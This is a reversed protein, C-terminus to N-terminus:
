RYWSKGAWTDVVVPVKLRLASEMQERVIGTVDALERDPAEVVIEDHVQLIMRATLGHKRLWSDVNLMAVKIMDAASGQVPTNVAVREAAARLGRNSSRIDPVLRRRGLITRAEGTRAVESKQRELYEHVGWYREFYSQLFREAEDISMGTERALRQPGMGYIVGFNIVKARSRLDPTVEDPSVGFVRSATSRHVDEGRAFTDCLLEDGSLHALLRLEIQSYDASLLSWDDAEPVFAKRIRRGLPTRIPINQLNPESSSLRGTATVTQNFSTHIRGTQPNVLRPLAEVYTGMLKALNRYELVSEVIPQGRMRELVGVATSPGTKTRPVRTLGAAKHVELERYLVEALQRPSSVNFTRGSLGWIERELDGMRRQLVESMDRLYSSDVRVGTAEMNMLVRVLPLEVDRYLAGMDAAEIQPLFLGHLRLCYDADECSYEAVREPEVTALSVQQTKGDILEQLATKKVGLYRMSLADLGHQRASPDILYSEIMTDFSLGEVDVGARKLVLLDYKANQGGKPLSPDGLLPRLQEMRRRGEEGSTEVYSAEGEDCSFSIGLLEAQMPDPSTTETDFSFEVGGRLRSILQEFEQDTRVLTYSVREEGTSTVKGLLSTFDLKRFLASLAPKNAARRKLREPGIPLRLNTRITALDKALEAAARSESLARAIHPQEIDEAHEIAEELGGFRSLLASARKPGVGPVGKINDSADGVLGLYDPVLRPPVGMAEQVEAPGRVRVGGGRGLHYIWVRDNVLQMFDKDGSVIYSTWGQEEAMRVLTGVVDDAEQGPICLSEIGLYQTAEKMLPLQEVLEPAMKERTAKYDPYRHHRFTPETSDFVVAM